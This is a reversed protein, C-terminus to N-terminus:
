TRPTDLSRLFDGVVDLSRRELVLAFLRDKIDRPLLEVTNTTSTDCKASPFRALLADKQQETTPLSVVKLGALVEKATAALGAARLRADREENIWINIPYVNRDTPM